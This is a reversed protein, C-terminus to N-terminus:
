FALTGKLNSSTRTRVHPQAGGTSQKETKKASMLAHLLLSECCALQCAACVLYSVAGGRGRGRKAALPEASEFATCSTESVRRAVPKEAHFSQYNEDAELAHRITEEEKKKKKKRQVVLGSNKESCHQTPTSHFRNNELHIFFHFYNTPQQKM